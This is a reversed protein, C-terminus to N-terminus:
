DVPDSLLQLIRGARDPKGSPQVLIQLAQQLLKMREDTGAGPGAPAVDYRDLTAALELIHCRCDLYYRDMVADRNM